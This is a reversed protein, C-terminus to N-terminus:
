SSLTCKYVHIHRLDKQAVFFELQAKYVQNKACKQYALVDKLVEDM